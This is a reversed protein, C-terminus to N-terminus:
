TFTLIVPHCWCIQKSIRPLNFIVVSLWCENNKLVNCAFSFFMMLSAVGYGSRHHSGDPQCTWQLWAYLWYRAQSHSSGGMSVDELGGGQWCLVRGLEAWGALIFSVHKDLDVLLFVVRVRSLSDKLSDASSINTWTVLLVALMLVQLVGWWLYVRRFKFVHLQRCQFEVCMRSGTSWIRCTVKPAGFARLRWCLDNIFRESFAMAKALFSCHHFALPGSWCALYWCPVFHHENPSRKAHGLICYKVSFCM